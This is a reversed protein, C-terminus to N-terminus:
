AETTGAPATDGRYVRYVPGALLLAGLLALGAVFRWDLVLGDALLSEASVGILVGAIVWPLEGAATGLLFPRPPVRAAGCAVTIVDSPAPLLRSATVTRVGGGADVLRAGAASVRGDPVTRVAILYPPVATLTLLGVGIPVGWLGYGYGAAIALPTTPWALFPRVVAVALLVAGFAVPRDALWVLASLAREPSTTWAGVLVVVLVATGIAIRRRNM